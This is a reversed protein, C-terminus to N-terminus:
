ETPRASDLARVLEISTSVHLKEMARARHNEVTRSSLSLVEAIERSSKGISVLEVVERERETLLALRAERTERELRELHLQRSRALAAQVKERLAGGQVPKELFDFAGRKIAAVASSVESYASIFIIPLVAGRALLQRQVELGGIEPMRLDTILCECPSPRYASLFEAASAFSRFEAGIGQLLEQLTWLALTDDDILYILPQM